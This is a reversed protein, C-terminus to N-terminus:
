IFQVDRFTKLILGLPIEQFRTLRGTGPSLHISEMALSRETDRLCSLCPKWPPNAGGLACKDKLHGCVSAPWSSHQLGAGGETRMAILRQIFDTHYLRHSVLASAGLVRCPAHEGAATNKCTRKGDCKLESRLSRRRFRSCTSRVFRNPFRFFPTLSM